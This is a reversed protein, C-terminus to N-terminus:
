DPWAASAVLELDTRLQRMYKRWEMELQELDGFCERFTEM